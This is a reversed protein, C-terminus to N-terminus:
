CPAVEAHLKQHRVSNLLCWPHVKLAAARGKWLVKYVCGFAGRGILESLEVGGVGNGLQELADDVSFDDSEDSNFSSSDSAIYQRAM